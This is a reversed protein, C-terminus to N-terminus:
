WTGLQLVDNKLNLTIFMPILNYLSISVLILCNSLKLSKLHFNLNKKVPVNKKNM